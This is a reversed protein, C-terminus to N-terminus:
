ICAVIAALRKAAEALSPIDMYEYRSHIPGGSTGISDVTPIGHATTYAADSGSPEDRAVLQSLGVEAFIENMREFLRVNREVYEM